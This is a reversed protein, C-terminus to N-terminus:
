DDIIEEIIDGDLIKAVLAAGTLGLTALDPDDPSPGDIEDM